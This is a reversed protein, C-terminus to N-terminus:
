PDNIASSDENAAPSVRWVRGETSDFEGEGPPINFYITRAMRNNCKTPPDGRAFIAAVAAVEFRRLLYPRRPIIVRRSIARCRSEGRSMVFYDGPEGSGEKEEM